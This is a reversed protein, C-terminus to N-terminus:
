RTEWAMAPADSVRAEAVAEEEEADSEIEEGEEVELVEEFREEEELGQMEGVDIGVGDQKREADGEEGEGLDGVEDIEGLSLGLALVEEGIEEEDGEEGVEDGAGDEMVLLHHGLEALDARLRCLRSSAECWDVWRRKARLGSSTARPRM